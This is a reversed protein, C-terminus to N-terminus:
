GSGGDVTQEDHEDSYSEDSGGVQSSQAVVPLGYRLHNRWCRFFKELLAAAGGVFFHTPTQFCLVSLVLNCVESYQRITVPSDAKNGPFSVPSMTVVHAQLSQYPATM